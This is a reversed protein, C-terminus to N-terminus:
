ESDHKNSEKEENKIEEKTRRVKMSVYDQLGYLQIYYKLSSDSKFMYNEKDTINSNKVYDNIGERIEKISPKSNKYETCKRIVGLIQERTYKRMNKDKNKYNVDLSAITLNTNPDIIIFTKTEICNRLDNIILDMDNKDFPSYTYIKRPYYQNTNDIWNYTITNNVKNTLKLMICYCLYNFQENTLDKVWEYLSCMQMRMVNLIRDKTYGSSGNQLQTLNYLKELRIGQVSYSYSMFSLFKKLVSRQVIDVQYTNLEKLDNEIFRCKDNENYSSYKNLIQNIKLSHTDYINQLDNLIKIIFDYKEVSYNELFEKKSIM